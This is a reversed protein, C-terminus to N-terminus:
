CHPEGPTRIVSVIDGSKKLHNQVQIVILDPGFLANSLAECLQTKEKGEIKEVRKIQKNRGQRFLITPRKKASYRNIVGQLYIL